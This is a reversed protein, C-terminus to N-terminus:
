ASRTDRARFDFRIYARQRMRAPLQCPPLTDPLRIAFLRPSMACRLRLFRCYRTVYAASFFFLLMLYRAYVAAAFYDARFCPADIAFVDADEFYVLPCRCRMLSFAAADAIPTLLLTIILRIPM